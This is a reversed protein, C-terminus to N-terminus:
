QRSGLNAAARMAAIHIADMQAGAVGEVQTLAM